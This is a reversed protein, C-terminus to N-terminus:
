ATKLVSLPFYTAAFRVSGVRGSPARVRCKVDEQRSQPAILVKTFFTAACRQPADNLSRVDAQPLGEAAVGAADARRVFPVSNDPESRALPQTRGGLLWESALVRASTLTM